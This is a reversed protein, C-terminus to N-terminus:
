GRAVGAGAFGGGALMGLGAGAVRPLASTTNGGSSPLTWGMAVSQSSEGTLDVVYLLMDLSHEFDTPLFTPM